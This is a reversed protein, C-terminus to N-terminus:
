VTPKINGNSQFFNKPDYKNKIQVLRPYNHGYSVAVEEQTEDMMENIYFRNSVYPALADWYDKGWKINKATLAPDVWSGGLELDWKAGRHPWATADPAVDDVAGGFRILRMTNHRGPSHRWKEMMVDILDPDYEDMTRGRIYYNTGHPNGADLLTQQRLFSKPKILDAVPNGLKRYPKLVKEGEKPSGMYQFGAMLFPTGTSSMSMAASMNLERPAELSYDFYRNYMDKADDMAYVVVGSLIQPDLKHMRYTYSTVIGFNGGGGRVAWFLDTNETDSATRLKGDATVIQVSLLNDITLGMKRMNIGIGGGLTLGSIGTHSVVGAPVVMGHAQTGRDLEQLLVGPEGIATMTTPDASLNSMKSLDILLTDNEVAKGSIGHGGGRVTVLLDHTRAFNVANIVDDSDICQAILAPLKHDALGNWLMREQHYHPTSKLLLKRQLSKALDAVDARKLGMMKGTRSMCAVESPIDSARSFPIYSASIAGLTNKVFDRRKM